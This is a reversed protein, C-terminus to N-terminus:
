FIKEESLLDLCNEKEREKGKSEGRKETEGKGKCGRM